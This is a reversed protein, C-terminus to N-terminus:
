SQFVGVVGLRVEVCNSGPHSRAELCFGKSFPLQMLTGSLLALGADFIAGWSQNRVGFDDLGTTGPREDRQQPDTVREPQAPSDQELARAENPSAGVFILRLVRRNVALQRLRM